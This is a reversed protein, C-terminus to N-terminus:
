TKVDCGADERDSGVWGILVGGVFKAHEANDASSDQLLMKFALESEEATDMTVSAQIKSRAPFSLRRKLENARAQSFQAM